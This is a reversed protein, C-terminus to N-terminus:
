HNMMPETNHTQPCLEGRQMGNDERSERCAAKSGGGEAHYISRQIIYRKMLLM